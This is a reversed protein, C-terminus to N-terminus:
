AESPSLTWYMTQIAEIPSLRHREPLELHEQGDRPVLAEAQGGLADMQGLGRQGLVDVFQLLLEAM